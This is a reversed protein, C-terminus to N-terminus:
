QFAKVSAKNGAWKPFDFKFYIFEQKVQVVM